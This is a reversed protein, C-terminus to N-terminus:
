RGQMGLMRVATRVLIRLNMILSRHRVYYLDYELKTTAAEVSDGYDSNVQAWGTLGPKVAFRARYLPIEEQLMPIFEPREPRPGVLSMHGRLVAWLNPLEDLHTKRLWWGVRTVRPDAEVSWQAGNREADKRMSRIKTIRFLRGDQGVRVQTYFAPWGSEVVVAVAALGVPVAAVTLLVVAGIIDIMRIMLPSVDRSGGGALLQLVVWDHDVREVPVREYVSEYLDALTTVTAGAEHRQFLLETREATLVTSTSVVMETAERPNDTLRADAMGPTALLTRLMAMDEDDGVLAVARVFAHRTLIWLAALRGAWTFWAAAWTVYLALLRPLRDAGLVFYALLYAGLLVMAARAIAQATRTTDFAIAPSRSGNLSMAWLPVVAFWPFHAQTTAVTLGFGATLSWTYLGAFVALTAALADVVLLGLYRDRQM